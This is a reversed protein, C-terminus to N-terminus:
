SWADAAGGQRADDASQVAEVLVSTARLLMSAWVGLSDIVPGRVLSRRARGFSRDTRGFRVYSQELEKDCLVALIDPSAHNYRKATSM